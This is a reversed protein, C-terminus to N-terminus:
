KVIVLATLNADQPIDCTVNNKVTFKSSRSSCGTKGTRWGGSGGEQPEWRRDWPLGSQLQLGLPHGPLSSSSLWLGWHFPLSACLEYISTTTNIHKMNNVKNTAKALLNKGVYFLGLLLLLATICCAFPLAAFCYFNVCTIVNEQRRLWLPLPQPMAQFMHMLAGVFDKIHWFIAHGGDLLVSPGQLLHIDIAQPRVVSLFTLTKLTSSFQKHPWQEM